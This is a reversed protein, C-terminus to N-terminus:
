WVPAHLSAFFLLCLCFSAFALAAPCSRGPALPYSDQDMPDSRALEAAPPYSYQGVPVSRAVARRRLLLM